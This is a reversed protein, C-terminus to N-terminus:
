TQFVQLSITTCIVQDVGQFHIMVHLVAERDRLGQEPSEFRPSDQNLLFSFKM